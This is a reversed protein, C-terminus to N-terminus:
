AAPKSADISLAVSDVLTALQELEVALRRCQEGTERIGHQGITLSLGLRFLVDAIVERSYRKQRCREALAEFAAMLKEVIERREVTMERVEM